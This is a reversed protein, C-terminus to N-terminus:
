KIPELMFKQVPLLLTRIINLYKCLTKSHTTNLIIIKVRKGIQVTKCEISKFLTHSSLNEERFFSDKECNFPFVHVVSIQLFM